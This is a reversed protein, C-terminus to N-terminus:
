RPCLYWGAVREGDACPTEQLRRLAAGAESGRRQYEDIRIYDSSSFVVREGTLFALRYARWYEAEAVTVGRAELAAALAGLRDAERGSMFREALRAHDIAQLASWGLLCLVIAARVDRRPEAGLWLATFGIPLFLALLVYRLPANDVPRVVIFVVTAVLGVGVLYWAFPARVADLGPGARVIWTVRGLGALGAIVLIPWVWDRGQPLVGEDLARAGVLRRAGDGFFARTREAWDGPRVAVRDMLNEIQSGSAMTLGVGRTGPGRLDAVPKLVQVGEWVVVAAVCAVLWHRLTERRFLTGGWWEGVLLVPVAYAVFERTLFGIALVAGFWLPRRRLWWLVVVFLFPEINGGMAEMLHSAVFPPAFAFWLAAAVGLMPTLRGDQRFAAVILTVVALNTALLSVKLAMTTPGLLWFWPVALWAEVGLLYQQGYFFLPFARGESLHKAMLGVIAQDSDFNSYGFIVNIAGRLVVLTAAALLAIPLARLNRM